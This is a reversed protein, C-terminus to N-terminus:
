DNKETPDILISLHHFTALSDDSFGSVLSGRCTVMREVQHWSGKSQGEGIAVNSATTMVMCGTTLTVFGFCRR